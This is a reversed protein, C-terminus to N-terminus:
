VGSSIEDNPRSEHRAKCGSQDKIVKFKHEVSKMGCGGVVRSLYFM